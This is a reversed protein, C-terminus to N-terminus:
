HQFLITNPRFLLQSFRFSFMHEFVSCFFVALHFISPVFQECQSESLENSNKNSVNVQSLYVTFRLKDGVYLYSCPAAVGGLCVWLSYKAQM